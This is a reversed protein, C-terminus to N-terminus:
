LYGLDRLRRDITSDGPRVDIVPESAIVERRSEYDLELWPVFRCEPTHQGHGYFRLGLVREGLNEGHDASIVTKGPLKTILTEVESEVFRLNELYSTRLDEHTIYGRRVAEWLHIGDKEETMSHWGRQNFGLEYNGVHPAHPQMYHVILRKNPYMRHANLAADTVSQPLVTGADENWEGLLSILRFFVNDAIKTSFPNATVYVTDHLNKDSFNAKQFSWSENGISIIKSLKGEFRTHEEFTDWRCADLIILNDWDQQMVYFRGARPREFRYKLIPFWIHYIIYRQIARLGGIIGEQHTIQHLRKFKRIM